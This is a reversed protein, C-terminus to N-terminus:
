GLLIAVPLKIFLFFIINHLTRSVDFMLFSLFFAFHSFVMNVM